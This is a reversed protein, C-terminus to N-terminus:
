REDESLVIGNAFSLGTAVVRVAGGAPDYEVVRGTASQELADLMAAEQTSGSQAASFRASSDTYYIKGNSAVTLSNAFHAPALPVPKGDRIVLVGKVADAVLLQGNGDFALGLPRGGTQAVVEFASGDPQFRVIAGDQKLIDASGVSAYLWQGPGAIISEPDHHGHLDIVQLAALRDNAAHVGTYGPATPAQWAVPQLPVPWLTMYAALLLITMMAAALVKKM